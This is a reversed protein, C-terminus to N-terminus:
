KFDGPLRGYRRLVQLGARMRGDYHRNSVKRWVMRALLYFGIGASVALCIATIWCCIIALWFIAVLWTM